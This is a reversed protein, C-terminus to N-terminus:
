TAGQEGIGLFSEDRLVDPDRSASTFSWWTIKDGVKSGALLISAPMRVGRYLTICPEAPLQRVARLLLKTCQLYHPIANRGGKGWGGLAGNLASYLPTEQTYVNIMAADEIGLEVINPNSRKALAAAFGEALTVAQDLSNGDDDTGPSCCHEAASAVATRLSVVPTDQLGSLPNATYIPDYVEAAAAVIRHYFPSSYPQSPFMPNMFSMIQHAKVAYASCKRRSTTSDTSIKENVGCTPQTTCSTFQHDASSPMVSSSSSGSGSGSDSDSDSDSDSGSGSDTSSDSCALYSRDSSVSDHCAGVHVHCFQGSDDISECHSGGLIGDAGTKGNCTCNPYGANYTNAQKCTVIAECSYCAGGGDSLTGKVKVPHASGPVCSCAYPHSCMGSEATCPDVCYYLGGSSRRTYGPHCTCGSWKTADCICSCPPASRGQYIAEIQRAYCKCTPVACDEVDIELRRNNTPNDGNCAVPYGNYSGHKNIANAAARCQALSNKNSKPYNLHKQRGCKAKSGDFANGFKKKMYKIKCTGSWKLDARSDCTLSSAHADKTAYLIM